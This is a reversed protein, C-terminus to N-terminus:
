RTRVQSFSIESLGSVCLAMTVMILPMTSSSSNASMRAPKKSLSATTSLMEPKVAAMRDDGSTRLAAAPVVALTMSSSRTVSAPMSAETAAMCLGLSCSLTSPRRCRFSSVAGSAMCTARISSSLSTRSAAAPRIWPTRSSSSTFSTICRRAALMTPSLSTTSAPRLPKTSAKKPPKERSRSPRAVEKGTDRPFPRRWMLSAM